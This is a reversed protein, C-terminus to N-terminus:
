KAYSRRAGGTINPTAEVTMKKGKAMPRRHPAKVKENLPKVEGVVTRQLPELTNRNSARIAIPLADWPRRAAASNAAKARVSKTSKPKKPPPPATTLTGEHSAIPDPSPSDAAPESSTTPPPPTTPASPRCKSGSLMKSPRRPVAADAGGATLPLLVDVAAAKAVSGECSASRAAVAFAVASSSFSSGWAVFLSDFSSPSDAASAVAAGLTTASLAAVGTVSDSAAGRPPLPPCLTKTSASPSTAPWPGRWASSRISMATASSSSETIAGRLASLLADEITPAFARPKKSGGSHLDRRRLVWGFLSAVPAPLATDRHRM